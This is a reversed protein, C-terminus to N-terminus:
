RQVVVTRKERPRTTDRQNVERQSTTLDHNRTTKVTEIASILCFERLFASTIAARAPERTGVRVPPLPAQFRHNCRSFM